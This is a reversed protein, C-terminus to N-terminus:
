MGGVRRSEVFQRLDRGLYQILRGMKIYPLGYRKACRWTALTEIEVGLFEAAVPPPYRGDDVIRIPLQQAPVPLIKSTSQKQRTKPAPHKKVGPM